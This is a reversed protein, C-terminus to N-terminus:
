CVYFRTSSVYRMYFEIGLGHKSGLFGTPGSHEHLVRSTIWYDNGTNAYGCPEYSNGPSFFSMRVVDQEANMDGIKGVNDYDGEDTQGSPNNALFTSSYTTNTDTQGFGMGVSRVAQATSNTVIENACYSNLTDVAHNYSWVAREMVNGSPLATVTAQEQYGLQYTWSNDLELPTIDVTSGNDYLVLWDATNADSSKAKYQVIEGEDGNQEYVKILDTTTYTTEDNISDFVCDAVIKYGINDYKIYVYVQGNPEKYDGWLENLYIVSEEADTISNVDNCFVIENWDWDLIEYLDRGNEDAGLVYKRLLDVEDDPEEDELKDIKSLISAM